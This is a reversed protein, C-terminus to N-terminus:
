ECGWGKASSTRKVPYNGWPGTNTPYDLEQVGEESIYTLNERIQQLHALQRAEETEKTNFVIDKLSKYINM